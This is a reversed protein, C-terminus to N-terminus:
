PTCSGWAALLDLLDFVDVTGVGGGDSSIAAGPGGTGWNNLLELLDFVDVVGDPDASDADAIDAPCLPTGPSPIAASVLVSTPTGPKFLGVTVDGSTPPTDATFRFNYTSSWRLANSNADRTFADTEWKVETTGETIPWDAGSQTVYGVGDGSHYDVDHFGSSQVAVNAPLPVTFSGAGRDSNLNHLAYEYDWTGDGNDTVKYALHFRGEDPNDEFTVITVAPDIDAWAQLAPSGPHVSTQCCQTGSISTLSVNVERYSANNYRLNLSEDHTVYHIEAFFRGGALIDADKLQLRGRISDPGVAENYIDNHVGGVGQGQPNVLFRPGLRFQTGNLQSWYTDACGVGLTNCGTGSCTTGALAECTPESLACWTHKLWAMGIQEFRGDKLRYMNQAMLPNKGGVGDQWQANTDGINCSTSAISFARIGGSVGYYLFDDQDGDNELGIRSATIDPGIVGRKGGADAPVVLMLAVIALVTVALGHLVLSRSMAHEGIWESIVRVLILVM